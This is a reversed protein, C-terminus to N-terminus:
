SFFNKLHSDLVCFELGCLSAINIKFVIHMESTMIIADM